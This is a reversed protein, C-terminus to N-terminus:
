QGLRLVETRHSCALRAGIRSPTSGRLRFSAQADTQHRAIQASVRHAVKELAHQRGQRSLGRTSQLEDGVRCMRLGIQRTFSYFGVAVTPVARDTKGVLLKRLADMVILNIDQDVQGPM